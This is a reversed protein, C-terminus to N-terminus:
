KSPGPVRPFKLGMIRTAMPPQSVTDAAPAAPGRRIMPKDPKAAVRPPELTPITADLKHTLNFAQAIQRVLWASVCCTEELTKHIAKLERARQIQADLETLRMSMKGIADIYGRDLGYLAARKKVNPRPDALVEEGAHSIRMLRHALMGAAPVDADAPEDSPPPEADPEGDVRPDAGAHVKRLVETAQEALAAAEVLADKLSARARSAEQLAHEHRENLSGLKFAEAAALAVMTSSVGRLRARQAPSADRLVKDAEVIVKYARELLEPITWGDKVEYLEDAGVNELVAALLAADLEGQSRAIQRLATMTPSPRPALSRRGPRASNTPRLSRPRMM